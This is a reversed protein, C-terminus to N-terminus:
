IGPLRTGSVGLGGDGRKRAKGCHQPACTESGSTGFDLNQNQRSVPQVIKSKIQRLWMKKRMKLFPGLQQPSLHTFAGPVSPTGLSSCVM